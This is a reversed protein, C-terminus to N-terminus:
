FIDNTSQVQKRVLLRFSPYKCPVNSFMVWVRIFVRPVSERSFKRICDNVYVTGLCQLSLIIDKTLREVFIQFSTKQIKKKLNEKKSNTQSIRENENLQM